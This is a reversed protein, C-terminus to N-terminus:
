LEDLIDPNFKRIANLVIFINARNRKRDGHDSAFKWIGKDDRLSLLYEIHKKVYSTEKSSHLYLTELTLSSNSFQYPTDRIEEWEIFDIADKVVSNERQLTLFGRTVWLTAGICSKKDEEWFRPGHFGGDYRRFQPTNKISEDVIPNDYKIRGFLHLVRGTVEPTGLKCGYLCNADRGYITMGEEWYEHFGLPGKLFLIWNFGKQFLETNEKNMDILLHLNPFTKYITNEWSGNSLQKEAFIEMVKKELTETERSKRDDLIHLRTNLAIEDEEKLLVDIEEM